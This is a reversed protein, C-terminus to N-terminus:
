YRLTAAIRQHTLLEDNSVIVVQGGKLLVVEIVEDVIDDIVDPAERDEVRILQGEANVRVALAFGEEVILLAIRGQDALTWIEDIGGAYLSASRADDLREMARASESRLWDSVLPWAARHLGGCTSRDHNGPIFGIAAFLENRMLQRVSRQVGAVVVPLPYQGHEDKLQQMVLRDWNASSQDEARTLPWRENQEEVVRTRDGVFMRTLRESITIVRYTATRNHDAVLDRTAFTEDIVVREEVSTALKVAAAYEPSVCLAMANASPKLVQAELLSGLTAVMQERTSEDVDGNLRRDVDKMLALATATENANLGAGPSTNFLVTISPYSRQKQLENLFARNM